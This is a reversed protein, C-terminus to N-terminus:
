EVVPDFIMRYLPTATVGRIEAHSKTNTFDPRFREEIFVQTDATIPQLEIRLTKGIAQESWHRLSPRYHPGIYYWDGILKEGSKVMLYNSVQDIDLYVDYVNQGQMADAPISLTYSAADPASTNTLTVSLHTEPVSWDFRRFLGVREGPLTRGGGRLAQAAPFVWLSGSTRGLSRVDLGNGGEIVVAGDTVVLRTVGGSHIRTANLAV